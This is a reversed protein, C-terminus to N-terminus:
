ALIKVASGFNTGLAFQSTIHLLGLGELHRARKLPGVDVARLGSSEVLRAVTKKAEVDDGAIFVDLPQDDVQGTILTGGFTTNFAKVVRAGAPAIKALEEAASSGPKTSLDDYTDNVPNSIDVLIKNALQEGYQAVLAPQHQYWVALIVVEDAIRSGATVSGGDKGTGALEKALAEAKGPEHGILTVRNGGKLLRTAIARGMNGTGIITVNM